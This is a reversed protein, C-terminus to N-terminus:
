KPIKTYDYDYKQWYCNFLYDSASPETGSGNLMKFNVTRIHVFGIRLINEGFNSNTDPSGNYNYYLVMLVADVNVNLMVTGATNFLGAAWVNSSLAGKADTINIGAISATTRNSADIPFEEETIKELEQNRVKDALAQHAPNAPDLYIFRLVPTGYWSGAAGTVRAADGGGSPTMYFNRLQSDSNAPGNIQLDGNSTGSIFFYPNVSLYQEETIASKNPVNKASCIAVAPTGTPKNFNYSIPDVETRWLNNHYVLGTEPSFFSSQSAVTARDRGYTKMGEWFKLNPVFIDFANSLELTEMGDFYEAKLTVVHDGDAFDGPPVSFTLEGYKKQIVAEFGNVLIKEVKDLRTGTLTVTRGVATRVLVYPDFEPKYRNVIIPASDAPTSVMQTGDFYTLTINVNSNEVYPVRIQIESGTRQMIVAKHGEDEGEATFIVDSVVSLNEGALLLTAGLDIDAPLLSLRLSPVAHMYSFTQASVGEGYHNKLKIKGDRGDIGAIISIRTDSIKEKITMKVAGIYAEDVNNLYQGTIVIEAGAPAAAPTFSEIIPADEPIPTYYPDDCAAFALLVLGTAVACIHNFIRKM